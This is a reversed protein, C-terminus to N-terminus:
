RSAVLSGSVVNIAAVLVIVRYYSLEALSRWSLNATANKEENQFKRQSGIAEM